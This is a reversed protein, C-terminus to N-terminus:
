RIAMRSSTDGEELWIAGDSHFPDVSDVIFKITFTQLDSVKGWLGRYRVRLNCVVMGTNEDPDNNEGTPMRAPIMPVIIGVPARPDMVRNPRETKKGRDTHRPITWDVTIEPKKIPTSSEVSLELRLHTTPSWDHCPLDIGNVLVSRRRIVPPRAMRIVWPLLRALLGTAEM